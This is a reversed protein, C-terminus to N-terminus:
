LLEGSNVLKLSIFGTQVRGDSKKLIYKLIIRKDVGLYVLHVIRQMNESCSKAYMERQRGYTNCTWDMKDEKTDHQCYKNSYV